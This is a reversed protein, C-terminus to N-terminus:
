KNIFNFKNSMGSISVIRSICSVHVLFTTRTRTRLTRKKGQNNWEAIKADDTMLSLPDFDPTCPIPTELHGLFPLWYTNMLDTRYKRTFYGMYSIYATVLLVNGPM